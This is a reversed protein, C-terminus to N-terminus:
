SGGARPSVLELMSRWEGYCYALEFRDHLERVRTLLIESLDQQWDRATPDCFYVRCGLPRIPHVSCLRDVQFPCGGAERAADIRARTLPVELRTLTWAVELGTVYLRHGHREFHCCRGSSECVPQRAQIQDDLMTYIAELAGGRVPDRASALWRDIAQPSPQQASM